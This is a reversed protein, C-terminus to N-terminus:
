LSVLKIKYALSERFSKSGGLRELIVLTFINDM